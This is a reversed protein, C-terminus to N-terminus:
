KLPVVIFVELMLTEIADFTGEEKSRYESTLEKGFQVKGVAVKM